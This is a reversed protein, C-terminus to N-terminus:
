IDVSKPSHWVDNDEGLQITAESVRSVSEVYKVGELFLAYGNMRNIKATIHSAVTYAGFDCCRLPLTQVAYANVHSVRQRLLFVATSCLLVVTEFPPPTQM